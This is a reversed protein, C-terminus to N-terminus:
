RRGSRPGPSPSSRRAPMSWRAPSPTAATVIGDFDAALQTFSLLDRAKRLSARARTLNAEATERNRQILEFQAQPTINRQALDRQRAEEAEANVFQAEANAVTAEASRM